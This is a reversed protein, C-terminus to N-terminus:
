GWKKWWPRQGQLAKKCYAIREIWTERRDKDEEKGPDTAALASQCWEIASEHQRAYALADAAQGMHDVNRSTRIEQLLPALRVLADDPQNWAMMRLVYLLTTMYDDAQEAREEEDCGKWWQDLRQLWFPIEADRDLGFLALSVQQFYETPDHRSYGNETAYHWLRDAADLFAEKREAAKHCWMLGAYHEASSSAAIGKEHLAIAKDWEKSIFRYQIGLNNCLMSYEHADGDRFRGKGTAFFAEFWMQGREYYRTILEELRPQPWNEDDPFEDKLDGDLRVGVGYSWGGAPSEVFGQALGREPGHVHVRTLWLQFVANSNAIDPCQAVKELLPLARAFEK